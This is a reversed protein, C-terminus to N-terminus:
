SIDDQGKANTRIRLCESLCDSGLESEGRNKHSKGLKFLVDAVLLHDRGHIKQRVTLTEQFCAIAEDWENQCEHVCGLYYMANAVSPNNPGRRHRFTELAGM